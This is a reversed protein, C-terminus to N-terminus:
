LNEMEDSIVDDLGETHVHVHLVAATLEALLDERQERSLDERRLQAFLGLLHDCEEGLENLLVELTPSLSGRGSMLDQLVGTTM